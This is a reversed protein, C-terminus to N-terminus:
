IDNSRGVLGVCITLDENLDDVSIVVENYFVHGEYAHPRKRKALPLRLEYGLVKPSKETLEELKLLLEYVTM